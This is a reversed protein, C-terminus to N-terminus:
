SVASLRRTKIGCKEFLSLAYGESHDHTYVVEKIGSESLMRACAPCPMVNIYLTAGDIKLKNKMSEILIRVEAHNTDYHNQDGPPSFNKERVSGHHMAYTLYPLNKNYEAALVKGSKILVAGVQGTWDFSCVSVESILKMADKDNSIKIRKLNEKLKSNKIKYKESCAMAEEENVFPSMLKYPTKRNVVKWFEERLHLSRSWSGNIFIVGSFRIEDLIYKLDRQFYSLTTITDPVMSESLMEFQESKELGDVYKEKAIGLVVEGKKSLAKYIMVISDKSLSIPAVIFIRKDLQKKDTKTINNWDIM